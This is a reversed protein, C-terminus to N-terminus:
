RVSGTSHQRAVVTKRMGYTSDKQAVSEPSLSEDSVPTLFVRWWLLAELLPERAMAEGDGQELPRLHTAVAGAWGGTLDRPPLHGPELDQM